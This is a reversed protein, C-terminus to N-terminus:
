TSSSYLVKRVKKVEFKEKFSSTIVLESPMQQNAIYNYCWETLVTPNQSCHLISSAMLRGANFFYKKTLFMTCTVPEGDCFLSNKM